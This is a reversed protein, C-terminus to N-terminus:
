VVSKRDVNLIQKALPGIYLPVNKPISKFLGYHDGHYHTFLVAETPRGDFVQATLKQDPLPSTEDTDPLNAGFDILIRKGDVSIETCCGGIQHTGRYITLDSM